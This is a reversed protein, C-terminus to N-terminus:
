QYFIWLLSFIVDCRKQFFVKYNLSTVILAMYVLLTLLCYPMQQSFFSSDMTCPVSWLKRLFWVKKNTLISLQFTWSRNSNPNQLVKCFKLENLCVNLHCKRHPAFTTQICQFKTLNWSFILDFLHQFNWIEIKVFLFTKNRFFILHVM